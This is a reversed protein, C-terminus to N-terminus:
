RDVEIIFDGSETIKFMPSMDIHSPNHSKNVFELIQEQDRSYKAGRLLIFDNIRLKDIIDIVDTQNEYLEFPVDICKIIIRKIKKFTTDKIGELVDMCNGQIDINLLDIGYKKIIKNDKIYDHISIVDVKVIDVVKFPARRLPYKWNRIGEHNLKCLSSAVPDNVVYFNEGSKTKTSIARNNIHLSHSSNNKKIDILKKHLEPHPEVSHIIYPKHLTSLDRYSRWMGAGVDLIIKPKM